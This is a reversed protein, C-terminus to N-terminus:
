NKIVTRMERESLYDKMWRLLDGGIKGYNKIKWLLRKHPVKDFAKKLDLYVGDVWGERDQVIDVIRSYFSILNSSCSRGRRFGYQCNTLVSDEELTKMWEEKIIKECLKGVVSTLSVPRYNLPNEKNGSKYIPVINARKWDRPVRGQLLSDKILSHIKEVLQYRCEKLVWNSVGDPGPAKSVDLSELLKMVEERRVQIRTLVNGNIDDDELGFNGEDTFVTQFCENMVEAMEQAENYQKGEVKLNVIGERKKIKGNIHRYLLRPESKCKVIIDKEYNRKETRMVNVCENRAAIYDRWRSNERKRRWRNWANIKKKRANECITNYWEKGKKCSRRGKPVFKDVAANYIRMFENWKEQINKANDFCEWNVVDFYNRIGVFNTKNYRYRELKYNEQLNVKGGSLNMQIMVHDSKGIPCEYEVKDLIEPNSTFILDLRSPNDSGRYRTECDVWQTLLNEEAWKMLKNSWSNEGGRYTGEEWNIEKCNFDGVIFVNKNRLVLREMENITEELMVEHDNKTWANTIPPVYVGAYTTLEGNREKEEVVLVEAISSRVDVKTMKMNKETLIMVGGGEKGSRNKIWLTYEEKGINPIGWEDKWKTECLVLIDPKVREM